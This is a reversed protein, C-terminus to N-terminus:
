TRVFQPDAWNERDDEAINKNVWVGKVRQEYYFYFLIFYFM